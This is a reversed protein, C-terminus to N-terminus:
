GGAVLKLFWICISFSLLTVFIGGLTFGRFLEFDMFGSVADGIWTTYPILALAPNENGPDDPDSGGSGGLDIYQQSLFNNYTYYVNLFPDFGSSSFAYAPLDGFHVSLEDIYIVTDLDTYGLTLPTVNVIGSALEQGYVSDEESYIVKVNQNPSDATRYRVLIHHIFMDSDPDESGVIFNVENGVLPIDDYNAYNFNHNWCFFDRAYIVFDELQLSESYTTATLGLGTLYFSHVGVLSDPSDAYQSFVTNKFPFAGVVSFSDQTYHVSGQSAQYLDDVLIPQFCYFFNPNSESVNQFNPNYFTYSLDVSTPATVFGISNNSEAAASAPVSFLYLFLILFVSLITLFTKLKCKKM